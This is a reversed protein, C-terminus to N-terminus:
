GGMVQHQFAPCNSITRQEREGLQLLTGGFGQVLVRTDRSGGGDFTITQRVHQRELPHQHVVTQSVVSNMLQLVKLQVQDVSYHVQLCLLIAM